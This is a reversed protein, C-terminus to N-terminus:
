PCSSEYLTVSPYTAALPSPCVVVPGDSSIDGSVAPHSGSPAQIASLPTTLLAFSIESPDGTSPHIGTFAPISLSVLGGFRASLGGTHAFSPLSVMPVNRVAWDGRFSQFGILELSSFDIYGAMETGGHFQIWRHSAPQTYASLRAVGWARGGVAHVLGFNAGPALGLELDHIFCSRLNVERMERAGFVGRLPDQELGVQELALYALGTANGVKIRGGSPVREIQLKGTIMPGIVLDRELQIDQLLTRGTITADDINLSVRRGQEGRVWLHPDTPDDNPVGGIHSYNVLNIEVAYDPAGELLVHVRVNQLNPLILRRLLTVDTFALLDRDIERLAPMELSRVVSTDLDFSNLRELQAFVIEIGDDVDTAIEGLHLAVDARLRNAHLLALSPLAELSLLWVDELANLQLSVLSPLDRLEMSPTSELSFLELRVLASLDSILIGGPVHSLTPVVLERLEPLEMVSLGGAYNLVPFVLTEVREFDQLVLEEEVYELVSLDVRAVDRLGTLVVRQSYTLSPLELAELAELERLSLQGANELLPLEITTVRSLESLLVTGTRLERAQVETVDGIDTLTLHASRFNNFDLVGEYSGGSIEVGGARLNPANLTAWANPHEGLKIHASRLEPLSLGEVPDLFEITEAYNLTELIDAYRTAGEHTIWLTGLVRDCGHDRASELTRWNNRRLETPLDEVFDDSEDGLFVDSALGLGCRGLSVVTDKCSLRYEGTQPDQETVCEDASGSADDGPPIIITRSGPCSVRVGGDDMTAVKCRQADNGSCALLVVCLGLSSFRSVINRTSM